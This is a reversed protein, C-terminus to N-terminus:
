PSPILNAAIELLAKLSKGMVSIVLIIVVAILCVLFAYEISSVGRNKEGNDVSIIFLAKSDKVLGGFILRSWKLASIILPIERAARRREPLTGIFSATGKLYNKLYVKYIM